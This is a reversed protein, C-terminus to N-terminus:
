GEGSACLSVFVNETPGISKDYPRYGFMHAASNVLGIGHILGVLRLAVFLSFSDYASLQLFFTGILVPIIVVMLLTLPMYYKHQFRLIPDAQLDSLDVEKGHKIVLPHKKVMLWGMHSFFFGRTANHPDADTDTHKHHIRHDRCWDMVDNQYASTQMLMLMIKLPTKAKYSRHSWLRHTGATVGVFSFKFLLLVSFRHPDRYSALSKSFHSVPSLNSLRHIMTSFSVFQMYQCDTYCSCSQCTKGNSSIDTTLIQGMVRFLENSM